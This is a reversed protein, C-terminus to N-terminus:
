RWWRDKLRVVEGFAMDVTGEADIEAPDISLTRVLRMAAQLLMGKHRGLYIVLAANDGAAFGRILGPTDVRPFDEDM